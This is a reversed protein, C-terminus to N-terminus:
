GALRSDIWDFIAAEMVNAALGGCHGSVGQEPGLRLLTKPAKLADHLATSQSDFDGKSEIQLAAVRGCTRMPELM